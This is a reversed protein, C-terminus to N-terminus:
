TIALYKIAVMFPFIPWQSFYAWSGAMAYGLVEEHNVAVFVGEESLLNEIQAFTFPTTVFGNSREIESLNSHLNRAQLSLIGNIDAPKAIRVTMSKM